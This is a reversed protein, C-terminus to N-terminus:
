CPRNRPLDSRWGRCVPFASLLDDSRSIAGGPAPVRDRNSVAFFTRMVILAGGRKAVAAFAGDIEVTDRVPSVTLEVGLVTAAAKMSQLHVGVNAGANATAPNFLMATQERNPEFQTKCRLGGSIM